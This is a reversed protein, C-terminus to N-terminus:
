IRKEARAALKGRNKSQDNELILYIANKKQFYKFKNKTIIKM